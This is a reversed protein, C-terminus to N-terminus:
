PRSASTPASLDGSPTVTLDSEGAWSTVELEVVHDSHLVIKLLHAESLRSTKPLTKVAWM